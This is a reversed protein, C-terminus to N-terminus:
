HPLDIQLMIFTLFVNDDLSSLALTIWNKLELLVEFNAEKIAEDLLMEFDQKRNIDISGRKEIKILAIGCLIPLSNNLGYQNLTDLNNM